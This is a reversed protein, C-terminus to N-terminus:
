ESVKPFLEDLLQSERGSLGQPKTMAATAPKPIPQMGDALFPFCMSHGRAGAVACMKASGEWNDIVIYSPGKSPMLDYRLVTSLIASSLLISMPLMLKVVLDVGRGM